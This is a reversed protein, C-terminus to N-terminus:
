RYMRIIAPVDKMEAMLQGSGLLKYQLHTLSGTWRAALTSKGRRSAVEAGFGYVFGDAFRTSVNHYVGASDVRTLFTQADRNRPSSATPQARRGYHNIHAIAEDLSDVVRISLTYDLYGHGLGRPPPGGRSSSQVNRGGASACAKGAHRCLRPLFTDAIERHVLCRRWRTASPCMKVKSDVAIAVRWRVDGAKDVDCPLHRRMGARPNLSHGHHLPCSTAAGPFILDVARGGQAPRWTTAPPDAAACILPCVLKRLLAECVIAFHRIPTGASGTRRQAARRQARSRWPPLQVLADPRSEFIVGIM